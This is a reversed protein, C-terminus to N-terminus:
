IKKTKSCFWAGPNPNFANIQAIVKEADQQETSKPKQNKFKRQM